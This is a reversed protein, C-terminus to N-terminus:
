GAASSETVYSTLSYTNILGNPYRALLRELTLVRGQRRRAFAQAIAYDEWSFGDYVFVILNRYRRGLGPANQPAGQAGGKPLLALAGAALSGKLVDRRKM